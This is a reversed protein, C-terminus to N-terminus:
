GPGRSGGITQQALVMEWKEAARKLAYRACIYGHVALQVAEWLAFIMEYVGPGGPVSPVARDLVEARSLVSPDRAQAQPSTLVAKRPSDEGFELQLRRAGARGTCYDVFSFAAEPYESHRFVSMNHLTYPAAGTGPYLGVSWRDVIDSYTPDQAHPIIEIGTTEVVAIEGRLFAEAARRGDWKLVDPPAHEAIQRILMELAEIGTERHILPRGDPTVLPEGLSGYRALFLKTLEHADGFPHYPYVRGEVGLGYRGDRTHEALMRDYGEWSDPIDDILDSRYFVFVGRIRLPLGYRVGPQEGVHADYEYVPQFFGTMDYELAEILPDLPLLHEGLLFQWERDDCFLDFQPDDSLADARALPELYWWGYPSPLAVIEVTVGTDVRFEDALIGLAGQYSAGGFSLLRLTVGDYMGTSDRMALRRVIFASPRWIGDESPVAGQDSARPWVVM